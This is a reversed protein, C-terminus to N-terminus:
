PRGIKIRGTANLVTLKYYNTPTGNKVTKSDALQVTTPSDSYTGGDPMFILVKVNAQNIPKGGYILSPLVSINGSTGTQTTWDNVTIGPELKQWKSIQKWDAPTPATGNKPPLLELVTFVPNQQNISPDTVVALATMVNKSLSNERAFSLLTAVQNGGLNLAEATRTSTVAPVVLGMLSIMIAMAVLLELLSFGTAPPRQAARKAHSGGPTQNGSPTGFACPEM